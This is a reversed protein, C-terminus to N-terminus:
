VIVRVGMPKVYSFQTPGWQHALIWISKPSFYFVTPAVTAQYMSNQSAYSMQSWDSFLGFNMSGYASSSHDTAYVLHQGNYYTTTFDKLSVWGNAPNALPGGYDKWKYSSPLSCARKEKVESANESADPNGTPAATVLLPLILSALLKM